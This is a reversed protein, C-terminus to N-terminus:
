GQDKQLERTDAAPAATMTTELKACAMHGMGLALIAATEFRLVSPGLSVPLLGSDMFTQAEEQDLGGEPGVVLLLSGPQPLPDFLDKQKAEEWLVFSQDAEGALGAAEASGGSLTEIRPLWPNGCQKAAAVAKDLWTAKPGPPVPGQSRRGQWFVVRDARLEVAKELLWGRRSSKTWGCALTTRLPPRPVTEVGILDLSVENKSVKSVSFRGQRGHGDFLEVVDGPGLRLAKTLHRAESDPLVYPDRWHEPPLHFRPPM